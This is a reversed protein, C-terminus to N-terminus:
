HARVRLRAPVHRATCGPDFEGAMTLPLPSVDYRAHTQVLCVIGRPKHWPHTVLKLAADNSSANPSLACPQSIMPAIARAVLRERQNAPRQKGASSSSFLEVEGAVVVLREWKADGLILFGM